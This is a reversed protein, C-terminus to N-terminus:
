ALKWAALAGAYGSFWRNVARDPNRALVAVALGVEILAVALLGIVPIM